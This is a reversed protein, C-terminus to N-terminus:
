RGPQQQKQKQKQKQQLQRNQQRLREMQQRGREQQRQLRELAQQRNKLRKMKNQLVFRRFKPNGGLYKERAMQARKLRLAQGAKIREQRELRKLRRFVAWRDSRREEPTLGPEEELADVAVEGEEVGVQTEYDASDDAVEITFITGRVGAVARPSSVEFKATTGSLAKKVSAWVSGVLLKASFATRNAGEFTAEDILLQTGSGLMLASGDNLELKVQSDPDVSLTDNVEISMDVALPVPQGGSPTRTATGEVVVVHGVDAFALVPFLLVQLPILRRMM